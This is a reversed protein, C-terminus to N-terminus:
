SRAFLFNFNLVYIESILLLLSEWGRDLQSGLRALLVGTARPYGDTLNQHVKDRGGGM